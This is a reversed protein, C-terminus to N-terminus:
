RSAATSRAWLTDSGAAVAPAAPVGRTVRLFELEDADPSGTAATYLVIRLSSGPVTLVDCDCTVDGVEPHEITKRASVHEGGAGQDWLDAFQPNARLGTALAALDPDVVPGAYPERRRGLRRTARNIVVGNRRSM